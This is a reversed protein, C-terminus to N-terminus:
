GKLFYRAHTEMAAVRTRGVNSVGFDFTIGAVATAAVKAWKLSDSESATDDSGGSRSESENDSDSTDNPSDDCILSSAADEFDERQQSLVEAVEEPAMNRLESLAKDSIHHTTHKIRVM